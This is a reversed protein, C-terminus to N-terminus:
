KLNRFVSLCNLNDLLQTLDFDSVFNINKEFSLLIKVNFYVLYKALKLHLCFYRSSSYNSIKSM